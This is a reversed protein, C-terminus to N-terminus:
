APPSAKQAGQAAAEAAKQQEAVKKKIEVMDLGRVQTLLDELAQKPLAGPQAFLMVRDRFIMLTPISRIEFAGALEQQEETNIKGFVVDGNRSAVDEYTPGFARCPQCWPAWWDLLTIGSEKGVVTEFNSATVELTHEGM